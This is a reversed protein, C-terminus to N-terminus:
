YCDLKVDETGDFMLKKKRTFYVRIKCSPDQLEVENPSRLLPPQILNNFDLNSSGLNQNRNSCTFTFYFEQQSTYICHKSSKEFGSM